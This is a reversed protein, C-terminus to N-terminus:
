SFLILHCLFCGTTVIYCCCGGYNFWLLSIFVKFFKDCFNCHFISLVFSLSSEKPYSIPVNQYKLWITRMAMMSINQFLHGSENTVGFFTLTVMIEKERRGWNMRVQKWEHIKGDNLFNVCTRHTQIWM